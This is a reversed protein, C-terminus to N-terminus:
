SSKLPRSRLSPLLLFPFHFPKLPLRSVLSPPDLFLPKCGMDSIRFFLRIASTIQNAPRCCLRKGRAAFVRAGGSCPVGTAMRSYSAISVNATSHLGLPGCVLLTGFFVPQSIEIQFLKRYIHTLTVFRYTLTM